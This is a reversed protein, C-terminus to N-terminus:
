GLMPQVYQVRGTWGPSSERAPRQAPCALVSHPRCLHIGMEALKLILADIDKPLRILMELIERHEPGHPLIGSDQQPQSAFGKEAM